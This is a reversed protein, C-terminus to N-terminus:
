LKRFHFHSVTIASFHSSKRDQTKKEVGCKSEAFEGVWDKKKKEVAVCGIM